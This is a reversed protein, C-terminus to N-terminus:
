QSGDSVSQVEFASRHDLPNLLIVKDWGHKIALHKNYLQRDCDDVGYGIRDILILWWEPYKGRFHAIKATKEEICLRLNKQMEGFVWGGSDDDSYGGSVFYTGHTKSARILKIQICDAVMITTPRGASRDDRFAILHQRIIPQLRDWAPIPRRVTYHVFWSSGSTPPGLSALLKRMRMQLPVALEELGRFGLETCENQNLRRVEIAIWGNVLFDPPVNGDPEYIIDEFGLYALYSNAVKESDDMRLQM